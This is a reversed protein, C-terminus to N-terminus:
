SGPRRASKKGKKVPKVKLPPLNLPTAVSSERFRRYNEADRSIIARKALPIDDGGGQAVMMSVIFDDPKKFKRAIFNGFTGEDELVNQVSTQRNTLRDMDERKRRALACRQRDHGQIMHRKEDEHDAIMQERMFEYSEALTEYSEVTEAKEIRHNIRRVEEATVFDGILVLAKEITLVNLLRTSKKSFRRVTRPDRYSAELQRLEKEHEEDLARLADRCEREFEQDRRRWGDVGDALAAKADALRSGLDTTREHHFAERDRARFSHRVRDITESLHHSRPYDLNQIADIKQNTLENIVDAVLRPNQFDVPRRPHPSLQDQVIARIEESTFAFAPDRARRPALVTRAAKRPSEGLDSSCV